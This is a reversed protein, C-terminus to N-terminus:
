YLWKGSEMLMVQGPSRIDAVYQWHADGEANWASQAAAGSASAALLLAGLAAMSSKM